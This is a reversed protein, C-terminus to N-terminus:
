FAARGNGNEDVFYPVWAIFFQEVAIDTKRPTILIENLTLQAVHAKDNIEKIERNFEADLDKYENVLSEHKDEAIRVDTQQKSAEGFSRFTTSARSRSKRGLLAGMVSGGIDLISELRKSKYQSKERDIAAEARDIEDRIKEFKPRYKERLKETQSDRFESIRTELSVRFEGETQGPESCTGDMEKCEYILLSQTRYLFDKFDREWGRYSKSAQMASPPNALEADGDPESEWELDRIDVRSDETWVQEPIEGVAFTQLFSRKEWMDVRQAAKAFHLNGTAFLAPRYLLRHGAPMRESPVLFRQEQDSPLLQTPKVTMTSVIDRDSSPMQISPRATPPPNATASTSAISDLKASADSRSDETLRQIQQRTM